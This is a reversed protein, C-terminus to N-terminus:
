TKVKIRNETVIQIISSGSLSSSNSSPYLGSFSLQFSSHHKQSQAWPVREREVSRTAKAKTPTHVQQKTSQGSKLRIKLKVDEIYATQVSAPINASLSLLTWTVCSSKSIATAFTIFFSVPLFMDRRLSQFYPGLFVRPKAHEPLLTIYKKTM